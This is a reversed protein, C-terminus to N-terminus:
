RRAGWGVYRQITVPLLMVELYNAEVRVPPTASLMTEMYVSETQLPPTGTLMAETYVTEVTAPEVKKLVETYVTETQVGLLGTTLAEAYVTETQASPVGTALAETYVTEAQATSFGSANIHETTFYSYLDSAEQTTSVRDRLYIEAINGAFFNTPSGGNRTMGITQIAGYGFPKNTATLQTRGSQEARWTTGDNFVRYIQWTATSESPVFDQRNGNTLGFSEYVRGNSHAYYSDMSTATEQGWSWMGRNGGSDSKVVAWIEAATQSAGIPNNSTAYGAVPNLTFEALAAILGSVVATINLRYYTYATANSFSYSKVEGSTWSVGTHTDLVTWSTGDNSGEFTFDKPSQGTSPAIRGVIAYSTVVTASAPQLRIWGPLGGSVTAWTSTNDANEAYFDIANTAVYNANFQSSATAAAITVGRYQQFNLHATGGFRVSKGGLPTSATAVTPAVAGQLANHSM